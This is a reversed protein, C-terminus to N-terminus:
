LSKYLAALEAETMNLLAADQKQAMIEAIRQKRASTEKAAKRAEAETQKATFIHRVISIKNDLDTTDGSVSLLSAAPTMDKEAMLSAFVSDLQPLTLDWLDETTINGKYPYRYKKRSATQFM